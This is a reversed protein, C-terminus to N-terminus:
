TFIYYLFRKEAKGNKNLKETYIPFHSTEYAPFFLDRAMMGPLHPSSLSWSTIFLLDKHFFSIKYIKFIIRCLQSKVSSTETSLGSKGLNWKKGHYWGQNVEHMQISDSAGKNKEKWKKMREQIYGSLCVPIKVIAICVTAFYVITQIFNVSENRVTCM